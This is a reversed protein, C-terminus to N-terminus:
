KSKEEPLPEPAAIEAVFNSAGDSQEIAQGVALPKAFRLKSVDLSPNRMFESYVRQADEPTTIPGGGITVNVLAGGNPLNVTSEPRGYGRNLLEKIASISADADASRMWHVLREIAENTHLRALERLESAVAPRGAPNPSKGPLWRGKADRSDQTKEPSEDQSPKPKTEPATQSGEGEQKGSEPESM